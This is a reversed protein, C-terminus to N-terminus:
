GRRLQGPEYRLQCAYMGGDQRYYLMINALFGTKITLIRQLRREEDDIWAELADPLTFRLQYAARDDAPSVVWEASNGHGARAEDSSRTLHPRRRAGGPM